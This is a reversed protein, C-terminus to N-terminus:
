MASYRDYTLKALKFLYVAGIVLVGVGAAQLRYAGPVLELLKM